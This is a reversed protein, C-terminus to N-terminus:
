NTDAYNDYDLPDPDSNAEHEHLAGYNEYLTCYVIPLFTSARNKTM